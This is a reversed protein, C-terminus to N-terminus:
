RICEEWDHQIYMSFENMVLHSYLFQRFYFTNILSSLVLCYYQQM